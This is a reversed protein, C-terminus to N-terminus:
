KSAGVWAIAAVVLILALSALGGLILDRIPHPERPESVHSTYDSLLTERSEDFYTM